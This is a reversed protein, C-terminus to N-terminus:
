GSKFQVKYLFRQSPGNKCTESGSLHTLSMASAPAFGGSGLGLGGFRFGAGQVGCGSGQLGVGLGLGSGGFGLSKVGGNPIGEEGPM